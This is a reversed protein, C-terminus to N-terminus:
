HKSYERLKSVTLLNLWGGLALPSIPITIDQNFHYALKIGPQVKETLSMFAIQKLLCITSDLQASAELFPRIDGGWKLALQTGRADM